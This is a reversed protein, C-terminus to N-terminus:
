IWAPQLDFSFEINSPQSNPYNPNRYQYVICIALHGLVHFATTHIKGIGRGRPELKEKFEKNRKFRIWIIINRQSFCTPTSGTARYPSVKKNEKFKTMNM